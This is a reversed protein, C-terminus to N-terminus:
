ASARKVPGTGSMQLYSVHHFGKIGIALFLPLVVSGFSAALTPCGLWMFGANTGVNETHSELGM